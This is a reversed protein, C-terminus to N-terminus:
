SSSKDPWVLKDFVSALPTARMDLLVGKIDEKPYLHKVIAVRNVLSDPDTERKDDEMLDILTTAIELWDDSRAMIDLVSDRDFDLSTHDDNTVESCIVDYYDQSLTPSYPGHLYMDYKYTDGLGLHQAMFMCKQIRFRTDFGINDDKTINSPDILGETRMWELFAVIM